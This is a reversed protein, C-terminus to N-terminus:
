IVECYRFGSVIEVVLLFLAMVFGSFCLFEDRLLM